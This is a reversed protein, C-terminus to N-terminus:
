LHRGKGWWEGPEKCARQHRHIKAATKPGQPGPVQSAKDKLLDASKREPFDAPFGACKQQNGGFQM